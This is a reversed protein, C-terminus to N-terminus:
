QQTEKSGIRINGEPTGNDGEWPHKAKTQEWSGKGRLETDLTWAQAHEKHVKTDEM